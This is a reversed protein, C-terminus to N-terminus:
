RSKEMLKAAIWESGAQFISPPTGHLWAEVQAYIDAHRRNELTYGQSDILEDRSLPIEHLRMAVIASKAVREGKETRTLMASYGLGDEQQALARFRPLHPDGVSIDAFDGIQDPCIRCRKLM